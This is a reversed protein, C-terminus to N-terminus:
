AAAQQPEVTPRPAAVNVQTVSDSGLRHERKSGGIACLGNLNSDPSAAPKEHAPAYAHRDFMNGLRGFDRDPVSVNNEAPRVSLRSGDREPHEPNGMCSGLLGQTLVIRPLGLQMAEFEASATVSGCKRTPVDGHLAPGQSRDGAV